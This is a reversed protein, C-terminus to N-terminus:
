QVTFGYVWQIPGGYHQIFFGRGVSQNLQQLAGGTDYFGNVSGSAFFNNDADPGTFYQYSAFTTGTWNYIVDNTVANGDSTGPFNVLANVLNTAVPMNLSFPNFGHKITNTYSSQVVQGVLTATLAVGSPNQLFFATGQSLPSNFLAGGSDYFGKVSGSAFFNNDADPGTFYQYSAFTSGTWYYLVTNTVANGDSILGAGLVDSANNDGNTGILQNAVFNFGHAPVPVNYYGVVNVSYVNSQAMSSALGAALTAAALLLKTRM